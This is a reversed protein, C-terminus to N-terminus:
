RDIAVVLDFVAGYTGGFTGASLGNTTRGIIRVNM